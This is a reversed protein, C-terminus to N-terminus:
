FLVRVGFRLVRPALIASIQNANNANQTQRRSLVTSANTLNFVDLIAQVRARGITFTKDVRLDVSQFTDLRVAGVEDLYTLISGARNPRSAILVSQVFPYGSRANYFGAIGIDYWPLRYAGNARAIWTTDIYVTDLTTSQETFRGGNRQEINTPDQYSDPSPFFERANDLTLSANLMWGHSMRKRLTLELGKYTKYFGPATMTVYSTPIPFSPTYYTVTECRAGEVPCSAAGPKFTVPNWDSSSMVRGTVPDFNFNRTFDSYRRWIYSAGVGLDRALEREYGVVVEDIHFLKLSPDVKNATVMSAPDSANFNGGSGILRAFSVENMQVKTDHNRDNWPFEVWTASIPNLASSFTRAAPYNRAYSAKVVNRSDATLDYSVVVSPTLSLHPVDASAGAFDIAPLFTFPQGEASLQGMFPSAPVRHPAARDRVHVLSLGANLTLRRRTYTDQITVAHSDTFYDTLSDRYFRASYPISFDPRAGSSFRAIVNGGYTLESFAEGRWWTYGATIAQDGGLLGSALYNFSVSATDTPRVFSAQYYSRAWARTSLEYMVQADREADTHGLLGFNNNVHAWQAELMLRDSFTHQDRAKWVGAPGSKWGWGGYSSPLSGQRWTTEIPRLDSAGRTPM